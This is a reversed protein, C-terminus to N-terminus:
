GNEGDIFIILIIGVINKTPIEHKDQSIKSLLLDLNPLVFLQGHTM